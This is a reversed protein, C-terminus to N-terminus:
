SAREVGKWLGCEVSSAPVCSLGTAVIAEVVIDEHIREIQGGIVVRFQRHGHLPVDIKAAGLGRLVLFRREDLVGEIRGDLQRLPGVAPIEFDRGVLIPGRGL